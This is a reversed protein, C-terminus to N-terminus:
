PNTTCCQTARCKCLLQHNGLHGYALLLAGISTVAVELMHFDHLLLSVWLMAVGPVAFMAPQKVGHKKYGRILSVSMLPLAVSAFAIHLWETDPEAHAVAPLVAILFPTAICHLFCATSVFVGAKDLKNMPITTDNSAM